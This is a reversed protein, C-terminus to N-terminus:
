LVSAPPTMSFRASSVARRAAQFASLVAQVDDRHIRNTWGTMNASGSSPPYGLMAYTHSSWVAHGTRVDIDCTGFGASETALRLREESAALGVETQRLRLLTRVVTILEEPAIPEVLYIEAGHEMGVQQDAESVHTASIHLVPIRRTVPDSKIRRCVELGSIDPLAVDLLVMHPMKQAVLQLATAGDRAELVDFGARRLVRTKAYLSPENDDVNLISNITSLNM